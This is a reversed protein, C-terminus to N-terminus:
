RPRQAGAHSSLRAAQTLQHLVELLRTELTPMAPFAPEHARLRILYMGAFTLRDQITGTGVLSHLAQWLKEQTCDM